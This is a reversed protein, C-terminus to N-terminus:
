LTLVRLLPPAFRMDTALLIGMVIVAILVAHIGANFPIEEKSGL